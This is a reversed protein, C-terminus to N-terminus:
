TAERGHGGVNGIRTDPIASGASARLTLARGAHRVVVLQVARSVARLDACGLQLLHARGLQARGGGLEVDLGDGGVPAVVEDVPDELALGLPQPLVVPGPDEVHHVLAVAEEAAVPQHWPGLVDVDAAALDAAEPQPDTIADVSRHAGRALALLVPAQEADVRHVADVRVRGAPTRMEAIERRDM